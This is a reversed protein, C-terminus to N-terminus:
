LKRNDRHRFLNLWSLLTVIVMEQTSDIIYIVVIVVWDIKYKCDKIIVNSYILALINEDTWDNTISIVSLFNRANSM